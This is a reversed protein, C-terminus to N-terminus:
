TYPIFSSAQTDQHKLHIYPRQFMEFWEGLLVTAYEPFSLIMIFFETLMGFKADQYRTVLSFM